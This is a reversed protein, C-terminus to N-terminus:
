TAVVVRNVERKKGLMLVVIRQRTRSESMPDRDADIPHPLSVSGLAAGGGSVPVLGWGKTYVRDDLQPSWITIHLAQDITFSGDVQDARCGCAGEFNRVWNGVESVHM